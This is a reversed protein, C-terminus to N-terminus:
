KPKKVLFFLNPTFIKEKESEVFADAGINLFSSVQKTGKPAIRVAELFGVFINTLSRGLRSSRFGKQLPLSWTMGEKCDNEIDIIQFGADKFSKEVEKVTLTKQLAGGYELDEIIKTHKPNKPDYHDLVAYEYGSFYGGPKLLRYIEKFCAAKDPAHPTAEIAYAADFSADPLDCGMFSGRHFSCLHDIKREQVNKKAKEIQYANINLGVFNAKSHSAINCMPGAVGCGVDLVKMGPKLNLVDKMKLEYCLRADKSSQNPKHPAFHFSKGWGFEFFDTVLDYYKEIVSPEKTESLNNRMTVANCKEKTYMDRLQAM